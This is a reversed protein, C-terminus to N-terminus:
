FFTYYTGGGGGGRIDHAILICIVNKSDDNNICLEYSLLMIAHSIQTKLFCKLTQKHSETSVFCILTLAELKNKCTCCKPTWRQYWNSTCVGLLYPTCSKDM